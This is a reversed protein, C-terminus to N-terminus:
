VSKGFDKAVKAIDIMNIEGNGDLDGISKYNPDGEKTGYAKAVMSIVLINVTLDKNIDTRYTINVLNSVSTTLQAENTVELTM